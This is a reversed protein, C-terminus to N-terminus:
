RSQLVRAAISEASAENSPGSPASLLQLLDSRRIRLLRGSRYPRLKGLALWQRITRPTVRAIRAADQTSLFESRLRQDTLTLDAVLDSLERVTSRLMRLEDNRPDSPTRYQHSSM